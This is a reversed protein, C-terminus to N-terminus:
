IDLKMYIAPFYEKNIKSYRDLEGYKKFGFKKYLAIAPLNDSLVELTVLSYDLDKILDLVQKFLMSGIGHNWYAKKVSIAISARHSLRKASYSGFSSNGIIEGCYIALYLRAKPNNKLSELFSIEQELTFSVGEEGFHLYHTEGGVCKLYELLKEADDPEAERIIIKNVDIKMKDGKERVM